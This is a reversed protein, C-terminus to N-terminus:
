FYLFLKTFVYSLKGPVGLVRSCWLVEPAVSLRKRRHRWGAIRGSVQPQSWAVATLPPGHMCSQLYTCRVLVQYMARGRRTYQQVPIIASAHITLNGAGGLHSPPRVFYRKAHKAHKILLPCCCPPVSNLSNAHIIRHIRPGHLMVSCGKPPEAM